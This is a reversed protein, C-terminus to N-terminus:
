SLTRFGLLNPYRRINSRFSVIRQDFLQDFLLNFLQEFMQEFQQNPCFAKLLIRNFFCNQRPQM